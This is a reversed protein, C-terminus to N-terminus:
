AADRPSAVTGSIVVGNPSGVVDVSANPFQSSLAAKLQATSRRVLVPYRLSKGDQTMVFATTAGAKKGILLFSTPNPVQVDAIDPNAVLVSRAPGPLAI